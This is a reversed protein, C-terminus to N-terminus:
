GGSTKRRACSRSRSGTSGQAIGFDLHELDRATVAELELTGDPYNIRAKRAVRRRGRRRNSHAPGDVATVRLAIARRSPLHTQRGRRRARSRPVLVSVQTAERRGARHDAVFTAGEILRVPRGYRRPVDPGSRRAPLDALDRHAARTRDRHPARRRDDRRARRAHRALLEASGRKVGALFFSGLTAPRAVGPGVTAVIEHTEAAAARRAPNRSTVWPGAVPQFCRDPREGTSDNQEPRPM